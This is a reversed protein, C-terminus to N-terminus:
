QLAAPPLAGWLSLAEYWEIATGITLVPVLIPSAVACFVAKALFGPQTKPAVAESNTAACAAGDADQARDHTHPQDQQVSHSHSQQADEDGASTTAHLPKEDEEAQEALLSPNQGEQEKVPSPVVTQHQEVEDDHKAPSGQQAEEEQCLHPTEVVQEEEEVTVSGASHLSAQGAPRGPLLQEEEAEAAHQHLTTDREAAPESIDSTDSTPQEGQGKAIALASRAHQAESASPLSSQQLGSDAAAANSAHQPEQASAAQSTAQQQQQAILQGTQADVELLASSSAQQQEPSQEAASQQVQEAPVARSSATKLQAAHTTSPVQTEPAAHTAPLEQASHQQPSQQASDCSHLAEESAAAHASGQQFDRVEPAGSQTANAATHSLVSPLVDLLSRGSQQQAAGGHAPLAFTDAAADVTHTVPIVSSGNSELEVLATCLKERSVSESEGGLTPLEDAVASSLSRDATLSYSAIAKLGAGQKDVGLQMMSVTM